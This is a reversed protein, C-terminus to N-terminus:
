LVQFVELTRGNAKRSGTAIKGEANFHDVITVKGAYERIDFVHFDFIRPIGLGRASVL